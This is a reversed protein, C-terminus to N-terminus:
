PAAQGMLAPGYGLLSSPAQPAPVEEIVVSRLEATRFVQPGAYGEAGPDLGGHLLALLFLCHSAVGIEREPRSMLWCLFGHAQEVIAAEHLGGGECSGLPSDGLWWIPDGLFRRHQQDGPAELEPLVFSQVDVQPFEAAIEARSRRSDYISPDPGRFAERCLEHAVVPVGEAVSRGFALLLTQTARRLPSTVLLQPSLDRTLPQAARAEAMGVETLCPDHLNPPVEDANGRKAHPTRGAAFEAARWVNHHGEGHRMLHVRKQGERLAQAPADPLLRFRRPRRGFFEAALRVAEYQQAWRTIRERDSPSADALGHGKVAPTAPAGEALMAM